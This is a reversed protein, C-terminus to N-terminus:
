EKSSHNLITRLDNYKVRYVVDSGKFILWVLGQGSHDTTPKWSRSIEAVSFYLVGNAEANAYEDYTVIQELRM